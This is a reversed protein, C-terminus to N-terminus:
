RLYLNGCKSSAGKSNGVLFRMDAGWLPLWPSALAAEL